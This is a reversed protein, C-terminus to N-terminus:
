KGNELPSYYIQRLFFGWPIRSLSNGLQLQKVRLHTKQMSCKYCPSSCHTKSLNMYQPCIIMQLPKVPVEVQEQVTKYQSWPASFYNRPCWGTQWCKASAMLLDCKKFVTPSNSAGSFRLFESFSLVNKFNM